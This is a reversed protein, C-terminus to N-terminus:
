AGDERASRRLAAWRWVLVLMALVISVVSIVRPVRVGAFPMDAAFVPGAARLFDVLLRQTSFLIVYLLFLFGDFPRYERREDLYLLLLAISLNSVGHMTQTPYRWGTTELGPLQIPVGYCCGEM